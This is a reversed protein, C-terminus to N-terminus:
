PAGYAACAGHDARHVRQPDLAGVEDAVAHAPPHRDLDAELAGVADAPDRQQAGGDREHAAVPVPEHAERAGLEAHQRVREAAVAISRVNQASNASRSRTSGLTASMTTSSNSRM